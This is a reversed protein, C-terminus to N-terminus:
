SPICRRILLLSNLEQSRGKEHFIIPTSEFEDYASITSLLKKMNSPTVDEIVYLGRNSMLFKSNNFLNLNAEFTHLGDDIILDFTGPLFSALAAAVSDPNTQDMFFTSIREEFFLVEPDIDVGYIMADPFYDRWVRLSAGPKAGRGMNAPYAANSTGIGCELVNRVDKRISHFLIEYFDTYRHPWWDFPHQEFNNTGKDSGYLDCLQGLLRKNGSYITFTVDSRKHLITKQWTKLIWFRIKRLQALCDLQKIFDRLTSM